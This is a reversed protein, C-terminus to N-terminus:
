RDREWMENGDSFTNALFYHEKLYQRLPGLHDADPGVPVDDLGQYWSVFRVQHQELGQMLDAVEEPRTYDTPTIFAVRGPNQLKLAFNLLQDGFFYDSPRTRGLMWNAKDYLAPNFFATRGTPLDLEGRWRMQTVLPKIVALVIVGVWLGRLLFRELRLPSDLFWVLLILAPLAVTYLRSLTAASAVTLLMSLGFINVLM